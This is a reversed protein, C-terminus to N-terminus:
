RALLSTMNRGGASLPRGGLRVTEAVPLPVPDGGTVHCHHRALINRAADLIRGDDTAQDLPNSRGSQDIPMFIM